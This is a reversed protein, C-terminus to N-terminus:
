KLGEKHLQTMLEGIENLSLVKMVSNATAEYMYYMVEASRSDPDLKLSKCFENPDHLGWIVGDLIRFFATLLQKEETIKGMFPTWYPVVIAKTKDRRKIKIAHRHHNDRNFPTTSDGHYVCTLAVIKYLTKIEHSVKGTGVYNPDDYMKKLEEDTLTLISNESM